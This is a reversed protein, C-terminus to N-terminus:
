DLFDLHTLPKEGGIWRLMNKLARHQIFVDDEAPLDPTSSQPTKFYFSLWDQPGDLGARAALDTFLVLDLVLPAAL